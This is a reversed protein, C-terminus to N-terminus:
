RPATRAASAGLRHGAHSGNQGGPAPEHRGGQLRAVIQALEDLKFTQEFVLGYRPHDRWRVKAYIPPAVPTELRVLEHVMLWKDCSIGAGQQSIDHLHIAAREGGSHLMGDVALRLRVQRRANSGPEDIVPQVDIPNDFQLGAHDAATWVLRAAHRQGNGLEILLERHPPIPTFVRVKAGTDSADRLVCPYEAGDVVLKAVRILLTFRPAARLEAGVPDASIAPPPPPQDNHQAM